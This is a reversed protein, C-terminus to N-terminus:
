PRISDKDTEMGIPKIVVWHARGSFGFDWLGRIGAM